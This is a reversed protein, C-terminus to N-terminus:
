TAAGTSADAPDRAAEIMARAILLQQVQSTGEYIRLVRVDRYFHEIAYDRMYGAGGHLQLVRDAIRGVAESAFLKCCSAQVRVSKGADAAAAADMVMCRMAYAEVKSDALMAQILQHQAIERGFTRRSLAYALGEAILREALGVCGAAIAIRGRDLAQMAVKFGAHEAGLRCTAPIRCDELVVDAIESGAIGMKATAPGVSLGPTDRDVVFASIGAAGADVTGTRALITFVGASPANTIYRKTGNLVYCDHDRRAATRIAAADSGADPETLAFAAILEGSAIRPIYRSRQEETGSHLICLSGVGNNIGILSRFVLGARALEFLVQVEEQVTLGLGGYAEPLTMGFLGLRSFESHVWPPVCGTAAVERDLQVLREDVLRRISGLFETLSDSDLAM